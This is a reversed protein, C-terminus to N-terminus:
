SITFECGINGVALLPKEDQIQLHLLEGYGPIGIYSSGRHQIKFFSIGSKRSAYDHCGLFPPSDSVRVHCM